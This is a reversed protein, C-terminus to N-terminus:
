FDYRYGLTFFYDRTRFLEGAITENAWEGGGELELHLRKKWRYEMRLAPRVRWRRGSNGTSDRYDLLMKPNLRLERTLPYRTNLNLAWTESTNTDSYRVGIIAIDGEKILSSGILQLSYFFMNGTEAMADVGGSAPTSGFSSASIDGSVQLKDNLPHTAGLTYTQSTATRDRALQQIEEKSFQVLLAEITTATQGQLANTTTLVPSNRYDASLTLTTNDVLRLNGNFLATNLKDYFIDYDVLTFFSRTPEFYRIEGGAARRDTMSDVEQNVIFLNFDWRQDFTGLDFSLGYLPRDTDVDTDGTSMVPFGAVLNAAIREHLQWRLLGGDFRGLVGGSSRSQRGMRVSLEPARAALDFFLSSIRVDDEGGDRFDNELGGIFTTRFDLNANRSRTNIDIDSRLSSQALLTEDEETTMSDHYYFQSVSGYAEHSWDEKSKQKGKRLPLRPESRATLLAKLRQKVREAGEGEPYLQLYKEYEAKAHALQNARDRALGLYEQAKQRTGADEAQLLGTYLLAARSYDGAVMSAEAQDLLRQRREAPLVPREKEEPAPTPLVEVVPAAPPAPEYIATDVSRERESPSTTTVWADAFTKKLSLLVQQASKKDPFFGLRLRYWNQGAKKFRTTYLRYAKLDPRGDPLSTSIPSLSSELNIAYPNTIDVVPLTSPSPESVSAGAPPQAPLGSLKEPSLSVLQPQMLITLRLPDSGGKIRYEVERAFELVLQPGGVADGEYTLTQLPNDATPQWSFVKRGTMETLGPTASLPRMQIQLLRGKSAPTHTIYRLPLNFNIRIETGGSIPQTVVDDVVQTLAQVASPGAFSLVCLGLFSVICFKINM